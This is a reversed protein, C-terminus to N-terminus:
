FVCIDRDQIQEVGKMFQMYKTPWKKVLTFQQQYLVTGSVIFYIYDVPDNQRYLYGGKNMKGEIM